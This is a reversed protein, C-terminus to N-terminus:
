ASQTERQYSQNVKQQREVLRWTFLFTHVNLPKDAGELAFLLTEFRLNCARRASAGLPPKLRLPSTLAIIQPSTLCLMTEIRVLASSQLWSAVWSPESRCQLFNRNDRLRRCQNEKELLRQVISIQRAWLNHWRGLDWFFSKVSHRM